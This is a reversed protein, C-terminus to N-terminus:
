TEEKKPPNLCEIVLKEVFMSKVKEVGLKKCQARIVRATASPRGLDNGWQDKENDLLKCWAAHAVAHHESPAFTIDSQTVSVTFHNNDGLGGRVRYFFINM